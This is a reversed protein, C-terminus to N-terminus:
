QAAVRPAKAHQCMVDPSHRVAGLAITLPQPDAHLASHTDGSASKDPRDVLVGNEFNSGARVLGVLHTSNFPRWRYQASEILKSGWAIGAAMTRGFAGRAPDAM